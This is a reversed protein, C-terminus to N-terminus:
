DDIGFVYDVLNIMEPAEEEDDEHVPQEVLVEALEQPILLGETWQMQLQSDVMDWGHGQPLPISPSAEDAQYWILAQYNARMAHMTSADKCPPLLAMDIGDYSSLLMGPKPSIRDVFKNYRLENISEIAKGGYLLCSFKELQDYM